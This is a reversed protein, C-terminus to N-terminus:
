LDDLSRLGGINPVRRIDASDGAAQIVEQCPVLLM